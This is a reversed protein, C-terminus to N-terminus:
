AMRQIVGKEDVAVHAGGRRSRVSLIDQDARAWKKFPTNPDDSWVSDTSTSPPFIHRLSLFWNENPDPDSDTEKPDPIPKNSPKTSPRPNPAKAQHEDQLEEQLQNRVKQVQVQIGKQLQNQVSDQVESIIEAEDEDTVADDPEYESKDEEFDDQDANDIENAVEDLDDPDIDAYSAPREPALERLVENRIPNFVPVTVPVPVPAAPEDDGLEVSATEHITDDLDEMEDDEDITAVADLIAIDHPTNNVPLGENDGQAAVRAPESDPISYQSGSELDTDSQRAPSERGHSM